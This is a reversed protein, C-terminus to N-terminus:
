QGMDPPMKCLSCPIRSGTFFNPYNVQALVVNGFGITWEPLNELIAAKISPIYTGVITAASARVQVGPLESGAGPLSTNGCGRM